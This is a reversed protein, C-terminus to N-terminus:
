FGDEGDDLLGECFGMTGPIINVADSDGMGRAEKAGEENAGEGGAGEGDEVVFGEIGDVM